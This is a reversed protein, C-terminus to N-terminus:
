IFIVFVITANANTLRKIVDQLFSAAVVSVVVSFVASVGLFSTTIAACFKCVALKSILPIVQAIPQALVM